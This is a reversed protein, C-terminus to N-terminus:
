TQIISAPSDKLAYEYRLIREELVATNILFAKHFYFGEEGADEELARIAVIVREIQDLFDAVDLQNIMRIDDIEANSVSYVKVTEGRQGAYRSGDERLTEVPGDLSGVCKDSAKFLKNVIDVFNDRYMTGM